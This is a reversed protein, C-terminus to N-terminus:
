SPIEKHQTKKQPAKKKFVRALAIVPGSLVNISFFCLLFLKTYFILGVILVAMFFATLIDIRRHMLLSMFNRYPFTSIMCFAVAITLIAVLFSTQQNLIPQPHFIVLSCMFIAASPVTLGQYFRRDPVSKTKVNYRALRLVGASLFVFSFVIGAAGTRQLGWHHILLAAALGFSVSDALSDLEIGFESSANTARAVIGDFADLIAACIIWFAAWRFRGHLSMQVSMYGFFLNSLSFLSPLLFMEGYRKKVKVKM